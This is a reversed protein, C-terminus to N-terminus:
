GYNMAVESNGMAGERKPKQTTHLPHEAGAWIVLVRVNPLQLCDSQTFCETANEKEVVELTKLNKGSLLISWRLRLVFLGVLRAPTANDLVHVSPTRVLKSNTRERRHM